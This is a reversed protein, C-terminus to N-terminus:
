AAPEQPHFERLALLAIQRTKLFAQLAASTELSRGQHEIVALQEAPKGVIRRLAAEYAEVMQALEDPDPPSHKM